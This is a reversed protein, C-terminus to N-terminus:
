QWSFRERREKMSDAGLLNRSARMDTMLLLLNVVNFSHEAVSEQHILRATHYRGVRGSARAKKLREIIM